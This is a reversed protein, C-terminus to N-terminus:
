SWVPKPIPLLDVLKQIFGFVGQFRSPGYTVALLYCVEGLDAKPAHVFDPQALSVEGAGYHKHGDHYGGTVILTLEDAEHDHDAVGAGPEVRMLEAFGGGRIRLPLRRIGFALFQWNSQDLADLAAERLPSPLAAIEDAWKGKAARAEAKADQEDAADIRALVADFANSNLTIPTEEAFFAGAAADEPRADFGADSRLNAITDALLRVAPDDGHEAFVDKLSLGPRPSLSSNLSSSTM